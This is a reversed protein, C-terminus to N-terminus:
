FQSCTKDSSVLEESVDRAEESKRAIRRLREKTILRRNDLRMVSPSRLPITALVPHGSFAELERPTHFTDRFFEATIASGLALLLALVLGVAITLPRNPKTPLFSATPAEAISVNSIKQEDLANAIRAEEQKKAYLQYNDEAEKVQRGLDYHFRTAEELKKVQDQYQKVQVTLNNRLAERGVQDVKARALEAELAQRLPNLDSAQEVATARAATELAENTIRIQEDVEKVLRDGPPFKTLLQARRNRLEVLMTNLREVSFQNPLTRSQTVIRRETTSLQKQIESIRNRTEKIAGNTDQWRAQAETLKQLGLEKQKNIEILNMSKDYEALKAEADHLERGYRDSQDKFFEYTGHPRHLKLHKELYLESLRQLVNAAVDPSKAAYTVEIVNAKKIPAIHLDKELQRVALEVANAANEMMMQAAASGREVLGTTRVVQELLDHSRLLEIESNIQNETVENSNPAAADTREPTVIVDARTNKVLIKMRSEYQNPLLLVGLVTGFATTLFATLILAKRLFVVSAADRLSM